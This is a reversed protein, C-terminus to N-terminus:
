CKYDNRRSVLFLRSYASDVSDQSQILVQQLAKSWSISHGIAGNSRVVAETGFFDRAVGSGHM